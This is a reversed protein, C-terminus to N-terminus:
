DPPSPSTYLLCTKSNTDNTPISNFSVWTAYTITGGDSRVGNGPIMFEPMTSSNNFNLYDNNGDFVGMGNGIKPAIHKVNGNASIAHTGSSSDTFTTSGMTTNSHILLKTNADNSFETTAPTFNATYRAM